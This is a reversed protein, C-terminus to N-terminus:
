RGLNPINRMLLFFVRTQEIGSHLDADVTLFVGLLIDAPAPVIDTVLTIEFIPEFLFCTFFLVVGKGECVLKCILLIRHIEAIRDWVGVGLEAM